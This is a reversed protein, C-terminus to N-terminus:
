LSLRTSGGLMQQAMRRAQARPMNPNQSRIQDVLSDIMFTQPSPLSFQGTLQTTVQDKLQRRDTETGFPVNPTSAAIQEARPEAARSVNGLPDQPIVQQVAINAVSDAVSDRDETPNKALYESLLAQAVPVNGANFNTAVEALAQRREEGVLEEVRRMAQQQERVETLRKPRFGAVHAIQETMSPKFLLEGKNDRMAGGDAIQQLAGRMWQPAAAEAGGLLDGQVAKQVGEYINEATGLTAGAIGKINWGDYPNTGLVGGGLGLRSDFSIGPIQHDTARSAAGSFATPVGSMALDSLFFGLEEDDGALDQIGEKAVQELEIGFMNEIIRLAAGAFPMGMSGALGMQVMMQTAFAKRAASKDPLSLRDSSDIAEKAFRGMQGLTAFTFNQLTFIVGLAGQVGPGAKDFFFPRNARGGSFSTTAVGQKAFSYLAEGKLGRSKGLEWNTMFGLKAGTGSAMSYIKKATHMYWHASNKTLSIPDLGPKGKSMRSQLLSDIQKPNVLEDLTGSTLLGEDMARNFHRTLEEDKFDLQKGKKRSGYAEGLATAGRKMMGMSQGISGTQRILHPLLTLVPQTTEILASSINFGLWYAFIGNKFASYEKSQQQTMNQAYGAALNQIDKHQALKADSVLLQNMKKARSLTVSHAVNVVQNLSAQWMDVYNRGAKFKRQKEFSRQTRKAFEEAVKVGPSYKFESFKAFDEADLQSKLEKRASDFVANEMEIFMNLVREDMYHNNNDVVSVRSKDVIEIDKRELGETEMVRQLQHGLDKKDIASHTATEMVPMGDKTVPQGDSDLKRVQWKILFQGHRQEPLYYPRAKYFEVMKIQSISLRAATRLAANLDLNGLEPRAALIDAKLQGAIADVEPDTLATQKIKVIPQGTKEDIEQTTRMARVLGEARAFVLDGMEIFQSTEEGRNRVQLMKSVGLAHNGASHNILVDRTIRASALSADLLAMVQEKKTDDLKQFSSIKDLSGQVESPHQKAGLEKQMVRAVDGFADKANADNSVLVMADAIIRQGPKLRERGVETVLVMNGKKDRTMFPGMQQRIYKGSVSEIDLSIGFIRRLVPLEDGFEDALQSMNGFWQRIKGIRHEKGLGLGKTDATPDIWHAVKDSFLKLHRLQDGELDSPKIPMGKRQEFLHPNTYTAMQVMDKRAKLAEPSVEALTQLDGLFSRLEAGFKAKGRGAHYTQIADAADMVDRFFGREFNQVDEPHIHEVYQRLEKSFVRRQAKSRTAIGVSMLSNVQALFEEPTDRAVSNIISKMTPDMQTGKFLFKKPVVVRTLTDLVEIKEAETMQEVWQEAKRLSEARMRDPGTLKDADKLAFFAAHSMEHGLIMMKMFRDMAPRDSIQKAIMAVLPGRYKSGPNNSGPSFLGLHGLVENTVKDKYINADLEGIRLDDLKNYMGIINMAGRKYNEKVAPELGLTDFYKDLFANVDDVSKAKLDTGSIERNIGALERPTLGRDGAENLIRVIRDLPEGKLNSLNKDSGNLIAELDKLAVKMKAGHAKQFGSLNGDPDGIAQLFIRKGEDTLEIRGKVVITDVSLARITAVLNTLKKEFVKGKAKTVNRLMSTLMGVDEGLERLLTKRNDRTQPQSDDPQQEVKTKVDPAPADPIEGTVTQGIETRQKTDEKDKRDLDRKRIMEALRNADRKQGRQVGQMYRIIKNDLHIQDSDERVKKMADVVVLQEEQNLHQMAQGVAEIREAENLRVKGESAELKATTRSYVNKIQQVLRATAVDADAYRDAYFEFRTELDRATIRDPDIGNLGLADVIEPSTERLDKLAGNVVTNLKVFKASGEVKSTQVAESTPRVPTTVVEPDTKIEPAPTKVEPEPTIVGEGEVPPQQLRATEEARKTALRSTDPEPPLLALPDGETRLEPPLQSVVEVDADKVEVPGTLLDFQKGRATAAEDAAPLALGERTEQPKENAKAEAAQAAEFERLRGVQIRETDSFTVQGTDPDREGKFFNRLKRAEKPNLFRGTAAVNGVANAFLLEKSFPDGGQSVQEVIDLGFLATEEGLQEGAKQLARTGLADTFGMRVAKGGKGILKGAEKDLVGGLRNSLFNAAGRRGLGAVPGTLGTALGSVAAAFPDDTRTFTDAAASGTGTALLGLGAVTPLVGGSGVTLGLGVGAAGVEAFGRPLGKGIDRAAQRDLGFTAGFPEVLDAAFEDVGTAEFAKDVQVSARKFVSDNFGMTFDRTPDTAQLKRSFDGISQEAIGPFYRALDEKEDSIERFSLQKFAM